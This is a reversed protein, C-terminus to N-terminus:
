QDRIPWVEVPNLYLGYLGLAFFLNDVVAPLTTVHVIDDVEHSVPCPPHNGGSKGLLFPFQLMFLMAPKLSGSLTKESFKVQNLGSRVLSPEDQGVFRWIESVRLEKRTRSFATADQAMVKELRVYRM